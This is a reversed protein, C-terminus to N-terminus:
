LSAIHRWRLATQTAKRTILWELLGVVVIVVVVVVVAGM